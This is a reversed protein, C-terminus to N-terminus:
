EDRGPESGPIWALRPVNNREDFTFQNRIKVRSVHDLILEPIDKIGTCGVVCCSYWQWFGAPVMESPLELSITDSYVVLVARRLTALYEYQPAGGIAMPTYDYERGNIKIIKRM